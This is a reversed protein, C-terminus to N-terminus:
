LHAGTPGSYVKGSDSVVAVRLRGYRKPRSQVEVSM